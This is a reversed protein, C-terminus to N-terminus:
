QRKFKLSLDKKDEEFRGDVLYDILQLLEKGHKLESIEELLRGHGCGFTKILTLLNSHKACNLLQKLIIHHQQNEALCHFDKAGSM